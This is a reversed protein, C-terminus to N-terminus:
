KKLIKSCASYSVTNINLGFVEDAAGRAVSFDSDVDQSRLIKIYHKKIQDMEMREITSLKNSGSCIYAVGMFAYNQVVETSDKIEITAASVFSYNIVLILIIIKKLISIFIMFM